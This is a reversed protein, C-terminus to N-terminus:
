SSGVASMCHITPLQWDDQKKLLMKESNRGRCAVPLQWLKLKKQLLDNGYNGKDKAAPLKLQRQNCIIEM